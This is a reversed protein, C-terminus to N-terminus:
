MTGENTKHENIWEVVQKIIDAHCALPACWCVLKIDQGERVLKAIRHLEDFAAGQGKAYENFLWRKYLDVVMQRPRDKTIFFPNSLPSGPLHNTRSVRGVYIKDQGLFGDQRGNTVTLRSNSAM